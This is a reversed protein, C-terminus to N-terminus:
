ALTWGLEDVIRSRDEPSLRSINGSGLTATKTTGDPLKPLNALLVHLMETTFTPTDVIKFSEYFIPSGLYYAIYLNTYFATQLGVSGDCFEYGTMDVSPSVCGWLFDTYDCPASPSKAVRFDVSRLSGCSNFMYPMSTVASTDLGRLDVSRLSGCSYFLYYCATTSLKCNKLSIRQVYKNCGPHRHGVVGKLLARVEGVPQCYYANRVATYSFNIGTYFGWKGIKNGAVQPEFKFVTIRDTLTDTFLAGSTKLVPSASPVFIGDRVVGRTAKYGGTATICFYATDNLVDGSLERDYTVFIEEENIAISDLDPWESPRIWEDEGSPIAAIAAAANNLGGTTTGGKAVIAADIAVQAAKVAAANEALTAM